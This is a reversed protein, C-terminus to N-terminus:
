IYHKIDKMFKLHLISCCYFDHTVRASKSTFFFSIFKEAARILHFIM